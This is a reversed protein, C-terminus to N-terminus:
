NSSFGGLATAISQALERILAAEADVVGAFGERPLASSVRFRYEATAKDPMSPTIFYVADILATGRMTGHLRDIHVDVRYDWVVHDSPVASVESGLATTLEARLTSRIGAELPEAWLHHRAAHVQGADTEVVIGARDLYPAVAIRGIGVRPSADVRGSQSSSGSGLL